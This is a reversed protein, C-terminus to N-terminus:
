SAQASSTQDFGALERSAAETLVLADGKDQEQSAAILREAIQRLEPPEQVGAAAARAAEQAANLKAGYTTDGAKLAGELDALAQRLAARRAHNGERTKIELERELLQIWGASEARVAAVKGRARVTAAGVGSVAGGAVGAIIGIVEASM